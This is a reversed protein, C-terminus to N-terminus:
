SGNGNGGVELYEGIPDGDGDVIAVADLTEEISARMAKDMTPLGKSEGAQNMLDLQARLGEAAAVFDETMLVDIDGNNRALAYRMTRDVAEKVFAPSYDDMAVAVAEYDLDGLNEEPVMTEIMRAIGNRDLAGIHIVADLRGPRVMGKHIREPHNTTLIALLETGKATIGDFLDLLKSVEDRETTEETLSDVDEFFVVAPQYIRATQMVTDLDDEGPRCYIFTWGNEVAIQATLFAGLTKGTGYPGELLVSRKLPLGLERMRQPHRLLSWVNAEFQVMVEDSYIVREPDVANLDIFQPDASGDIAKGRYISNRKLEDEILLFLGEAQAEFKKAAVVYVEGCMGLDRHRKAHVGLTGNFVPVEVEGWIVKTTQGFGIPISHEEINRRGFFGMYGKQVGVTGFARRFATTIAHAVDWPRYKFLRSFTRMDNEQEIYGRLFEMAEEPSTRAPIIFKEGARILDDEGVVGGGLEALTELIQDQTREQESKVPVAITLIQDSPM